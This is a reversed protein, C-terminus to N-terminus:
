MLNKMNHLIAKIRKQIIKIANLSDLTMIDINENNIKELADEYKDVGIIEWNAYQRHLSAMLEPNPHQSENVILATTM